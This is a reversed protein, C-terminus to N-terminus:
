CSFFIFFLATIEMHISTNTVSAQLRGIIDGCDGPSVGCGAGIM